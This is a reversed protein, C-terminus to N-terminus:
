LSRRPALLIRIPLFPDQQLYLLDVEVTVAATDMHTLRDVLHHHLHPVVVVEGLHTVLLVAMAQLLDVMARIVLLNRHSGMLLIEHRDKARLNESGM